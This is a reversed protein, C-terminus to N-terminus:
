CHMFVVNYFVNPMNSSVYMTWLENNLFFLFVFFLQKQLHLFFSFFFVLCMCVIHFLDAFCVILHHNTAKKGRSFAKDFTLSPM